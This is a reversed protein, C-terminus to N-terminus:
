SLTVLVTYRLNWGETWFQEAKLSLIFLSSGIFRRATSYVGSSTIRIEFFLIYTFVSSSPLKGRKRNEFCRSQLLIFHPLLPVKRKFIKKQFHRIYLLIEFFFIKKEKKKSRYSKIHECIM